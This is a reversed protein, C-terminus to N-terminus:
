LKSNMLCVPFPFIMARVVVGLGSLSVVCRSERFQSLELHFKAVTHLDESPIRFLMYLDQCISAPYVGEQM